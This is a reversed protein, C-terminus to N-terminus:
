RLRITLHPITPQEALCYKSEERRAQSTSYHKLSFISLFVQDIYTTANGGIANTQIGGQEASINEIEFQHKTQSDAEM